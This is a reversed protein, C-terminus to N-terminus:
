RRTAEVNEVSPLETWHTLDEPRHDSPTGWFDFKGNDFGICRLAGDFSGLYWGDKDPPTDVAKWQSGASLILKKRKHENM